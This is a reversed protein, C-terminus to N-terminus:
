DFGNMQARQRADMLALCEYDKPLYSSPMSTLKVVAAFEPESLVPDITNWDRLRQWYGEERLRLVEMQADIKDDMSKSKEGAKDQSQWQQDSILLEELMPPLGIGSNRAEEWCEPAKFWQGLNGWQPRQARRESAPLHMWLGRALELLDTQIPESLEQQQWIALLNLKKAHRSAQHILYALTYAIVNIRYGEYWPQARITSELTRYLIAMGVLRKFYVENFQKPNKDWRSNILDAFERFGKQAGSSVVHPKQELCNAYKALDTKNILQAKPYRRDFEDRAKGRVAARENEHQARVREYYWYSQINGGGKPAIGARRSIKEMERHFPHNSFLDADSVKNQSNAFRSIDSVIEDFRDAMSEPIVSLKMQVRVGDLETRHKKRAWFLSATTQGGNVIQLDKASALVYGDGSKQVEVHSATATLGNNYAFFMHPRNQITARIGRNVKGRESLFGRVNTELLRAGFREYLDALLRAPVVCLFSQYEDTPLHAKLCPVPTGFEGAFDIELPEHGSRALEALRNIDWVHFECPVGVVEEGPLEKVRDGLRSDTALILRAKSIGQGRQLLEQRLEEVPSDQPLKDALGGAVAVEFFGSLMRFHRSVDAQAMVGPEGPSGDYAYLLLTVSGDTDQLSGADVGLHRGAAGKGRWSCPVLDDVVEGHGLLECLKDLSAQERFDDDLGNSGSLILEDRFETVDISM